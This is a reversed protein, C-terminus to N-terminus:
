SSEKLAQALDDVRIMPEGCCGCVHKSMEDLLLKRVQRVTVEARDMAPRIAARM